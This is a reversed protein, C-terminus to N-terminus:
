NFLYVSSSLLMFVVMVVVLILAMVRSTKRIRDRNTAFGKPGSKPEVTKKRQNSAM